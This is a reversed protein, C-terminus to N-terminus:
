QLTLKVYIKFVTKYITQLQINYKYVQINRTKNTLLKIYLKSIKNSTRICMTLPRKANINSFLYFLFKSLKQQILKISLTLNGTERTGRRSAM